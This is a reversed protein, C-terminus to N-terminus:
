VCTFTPNAPDFPADRTCTETAGNVQVTFSLPPQGDAGAAGAPGAV